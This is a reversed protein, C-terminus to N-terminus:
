GEVELGVYAIYEVKDPDFQSPKTIRLITLEPEGVVRKTKMAMYAAVERPLYGLHNDYYKVAQANHDHRNEPEHVIMVKHVPYNDHLEKLMAERGDAFTGMLPVMLKM